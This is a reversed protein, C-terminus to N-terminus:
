LAFPLITGNNRLEQVTNYVQSWAGILVGDIFDPPYDKVPMDGPFYGKHSCVARIEDEAVHNLAMLDTLPKPLGELEVPTVNQQPTQAPATAQQPTPEPPQVIPANQPTTSTTDPPTMFVHAIPAFDMDMMEPLGERNKADWAPHHTSYMVRKGGVAKKTKTDSTIVDTKYNCFLIMDAWEKTTAATKKELKLEYRDYAGMEDPQEFKRLQAHATLVVNIGRDVVETLANLFKSGWQEELETYGKGYGPTEISKWNNKACLSQVLLAEAWDATDIVLTKCFTPQAIVAQIYSLLLEWSTPKPTRAVDMSATSDETDIFLPDPFKSALTSKGIGEPGYIVVKKAKQIKGKIIEM